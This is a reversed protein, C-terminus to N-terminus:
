KLEELEKISKMKQYLFNRIKIRTEDSLEFERKDQDKLLEYITYRSLNIQKALTSKSVGTADIYRKLM